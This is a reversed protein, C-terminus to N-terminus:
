FSQWVGFSPRITYGSTSEVHGGDLTIEFFNSLYEFVSTLERRKTNMQKELSGLPLSREFIQGDYLMISFIWSHYSQSTYGSYHQNHKTGLSIRKIEKVPIANVSSVWATTGTPILLLYDDTLVVAEFKAQPDFAWINMVYTQDLVDPLYKALHKIIKNENKLAESIKVGRINKLSQWGFSHEASREQAQVSSREQSNDLKAPRLKAILKKLDTRQNQDTLQSVRKELSSAIDIASEPRYGIIFESIPEGIGYKYGFFKLYDIDVYDIYFGIATVLSDPKSYDDLLICGDVYFRSFAAKLDSNEIRSLIPEMETLTRLVRKSYDEESEWEAQDLFDELGTEDSIFQDVNRFALDYGSSGLLEFDLEVIRFNEIISM